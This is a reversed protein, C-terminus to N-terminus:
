DLRVLAEAQRVLRDLAGADLVLAASADWRHTSYAETRLRAALTVAGLGDHTAVLSLDGELSRWQREGAWGRWDTALTGFYETLDNLSVDYFRLSAEM